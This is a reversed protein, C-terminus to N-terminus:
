QDLSRKFNTTKMASKPMWVPKYNSKIALLFHRAGSIIAFKNGVGIFNTLSALYSHNVSRKESLSDLRKSGIASCLVSLLLLPHFDTWTFNVLPCLSHVTLLFLSLRQSLISEELQKVDHELDSLIDKEDIEYSNLFRKFIASKSEM